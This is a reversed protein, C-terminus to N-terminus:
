FTIKCNHWEEDFVVGPYKKYFNIALDNWDLVQWKMLKCNLRKAELILEDFLLKGIGQGRASESVVFDELYLMRGKWTSFTIFYLLIGMVKGDEEAVIVHFIGEEFDRYYDALSATVEDPAKEYLALEKVLAFVQVLDDKIGKRINM